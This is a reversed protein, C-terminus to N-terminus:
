THSMHELHDAVRPRMETKADAMLKYTVGREDRATDHMVDFSVLLGSMSPEWQGPSQWGIIHIGESRRVVFWQDVVHDPPGPLDAPELELVHAWPDYRM